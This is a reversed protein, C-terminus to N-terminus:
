AAGPREKLSGADGGRAKADLGFRALAKVDRLKAELVAPEGCHRSIAVALMVVDTLSAAGRPERELDESEAIAHVIEDPVAWNELLAVAVSLHWDREVNRYATRM